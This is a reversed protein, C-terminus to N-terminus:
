VRSLVCILLCPRESTWEAIGKHHGNAATRNNTDGPEAAPLLTSSSQTKSASYRIGRDIEVIDTSSRASM